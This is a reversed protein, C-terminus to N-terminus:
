HVGLTANIRTLKDIKKLLLLSIITYFASVLVISLVNMWFMQMSDIGFVSSRILKAGWTPALIYSFVRTWVPLLEIPFVIGCLIYIPYEICNMLARVQRSLTLCCAILLSIPIFSIVTLLLSLILLELHAVDFSIKFFLTIFIFSILLPILGLLTNGIIKGFLIVKFDVPSTMILELTGMDRERQIDGASSFCVSSWLSLLGSGIIVYSIIHEHSYGQYIMYMMLSYFIPQVLICFKFTARSFSQVIQLLCSSKIAYM